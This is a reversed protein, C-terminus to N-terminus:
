KIFHDLVAAFLKKLENFGQKTLCVEFGWNSSSFEINTDMVFITTDIWTLRKGIRTNRCREMNELIDCMEHRASYFEIWTNGFKVTNLYGNDQFTIDWSFSNPNAYKPKLELGFSNNTQQIM